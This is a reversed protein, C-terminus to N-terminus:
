NDLGAFRAAEGQDLFFHVAVVKGDQVRWVSAPRHEMEVGHRETRARVLVPVVVQDGADIFEEIKVHYSHWPLLWDRWGEVLGALGDYTLRPGGTSSPEFIVEVDAAVAGTPTGTFGTIPDDSNLVEVLDIEDPM